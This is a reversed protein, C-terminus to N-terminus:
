KDIEKMIAKLATDIHDDNVGYQHLNDCAFKGLGAFWFLDWRLRKNFDKTQRDSNLIALRYYNVNNPLNVIENKMYEYHEKKIKM